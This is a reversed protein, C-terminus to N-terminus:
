NENVEEVNNRSKEFYEKAKEKDGIINYYLSLFIHHRSDEESIDIKASQGLYEVAKEKDENMLYILAISDLIRVEEMKDKVYRCIKLAKEFSALAETKEGSIFYTIGMADLVTAEEKMKGIERFLELARQHYKLSKKQNEWYFCSGMYYYAFGEIEKDEITRNMRIVNRFVALAKKTKDQKQYIHGINLLIKAKINYDKTNENIELAQKFCSMAESLKETLSYVAGLNILASELGKEDKVKNALTVAEGYYERAKINEFIDFYCNGIQILLAIEQESSVTFKMSEKYLEIAEVFRQTRKLDTAKEFRDRLEKESVPLGNLYEITVKINVKKIYRDPAPIKLSMFDNAEDRKILTGKLGAETENGSKKKVRFIKKFIPSFIPRFLRDIGTLITIIAAIIGLWIWWNM